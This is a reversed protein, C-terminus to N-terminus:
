NDKGIFAEISKYLAPHIIFHPNKLVKWGFYEFNDDVYKCETGCIPCIAGNNIKFTLHGCDCRYRDSYPNLDKLTQGYRSSFIGDPDKLDKKIEHPPGIIFGNGTVIDRIREEDFDIRELTTEYEYENSYPYELNINISM